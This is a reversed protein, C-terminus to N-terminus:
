RPEQAANLFNVFLRFAGPNGAPLQRFFSFGTYVFAGKGYRAYLTSGELPPEGPDALSFLPTYRPDWTAAFYLGREQVWGDFDASTIRNPYRLLPHEPALVRVPADEVSVRGNGFTLPYPGTRALPSNDSRFPGREVV